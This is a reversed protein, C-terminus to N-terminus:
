RIHWHAVHRISKYNNLQRLELFKGIMHATFPHDIKPFIVDSYSIPDLYHSFMSKIVGGYNLPDYRLCISKIPGVMLSKCMYSTMPKALLPTINYHVDIIGSSSIYAVYDSRYKKCTKSLMILGLADLHNFIIYDVLEPLLVSQSHTMIHWSIRPNM